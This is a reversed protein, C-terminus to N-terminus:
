NTIIVKKVTTEKGSTVTVFYVGSNELHLEIKQEASKTEYVVNGIVDTVRLENIKQSNSITINGTSPNPYVTIQNKNVGAQIVGVQRNNNQNSHSRVRVTSVSNNGGNALRMTPSCNFGLADVYWNANPYSAYNVDNLTNSTGATTVIPVFNGTNDSDRMLVYNSVPNATNEITYLQAWTFQGLGANVIYLTNHYNSKASENGCSDIASIKYHTTTSNPNVGFDHYESLSHYSVTGIQTYVNTSNERYIRFSDAGTVITKDWYIINHTSLSDVSVMCIQPTSPVNVFVPLNASAGIGCSNSGYVSIQQNGGALNSFNVLLTDKGNGGAANIGTPLTWNYNSANNIIPVVYMVNGPNPCITINVLGLITSAADPLPNVTLPLTTVVGTGCANSGQVSIVGNAASTSFSYTISTSSTNTQTGNIDTWIYNVANTIPTVSYTVNTQGQCVTSSGVIATAASPLPNVTVSLATATSTGCSNIASVM